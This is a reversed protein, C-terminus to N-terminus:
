LMGLRQGLERKLVSFVNQRKYAWNFFVKGFQHTKGLTPTKRRLVTIRSVGQVPCKVTLISVIVVM